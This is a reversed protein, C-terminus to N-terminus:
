YADKNPGEKKTKRNLSFNTADTTHHFLSSISSSTTRKHFWDDNEQRGFSIILSLSPSGKPQRSRSRERTLDWRGDLGDHICRPM